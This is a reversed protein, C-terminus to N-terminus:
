QCLEDTIGNKVGISKFFKQLMCMKDDCFVGFNTDKSHRTGGCELCVELFAIPKTRHYFIISHRPNYCDADPVVSGERKTKYDFLISFLSDSQQTTLVIRDKIGKVVFSSDVILKDNSYADSRVPYSVIEIKDAQDFPYTDTLKKATKSYICSTEGPDYQDSKQTQVKNLAQNKKVSTERCSFFIISFMLLAAPM